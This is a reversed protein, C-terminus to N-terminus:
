AGQPGDPRDHAEAFLREVRAVEDERLEKFEKTRARNSLRGNNQYLFRHLLELTHQPMDVIQQVGGVFRDYAELYAVENPLDNVVTQEVCHYLFEAHATADFFRYYDRTDNLIDVNGSSTPRWDILPLLRRSYSELVRRYESLERLMAASVPFVMNPPTYGMAALVHHILWRHLRGNGDVFPHIYVLGFALSAAATVPDFGYQRVRRDFIEIGRLLGPLDAARASVHEPLPERTDRDREGIFGEEKRVGLPVFRSDEIVLRQLAELNDISVSETGARAIAQAWRRTRGAHPREDEIAFSAKSDSLQLFAAARAIVDAHARGIVQRALHDFGRARAANLSPTVRVLPCFDVSGPLTNRVRHRSSVEGGALAFQKDPELVPVVARKTDIDPVDLTEASLWELVFWARRLYRGHPATRIAESLEVNSAARKLAAFISLDIGEWKLAFTLQEALTEGPAHRPTLLLWEPTQVTHHVTAIGALRTPTPVDLGYRDILWAYGAPTAPEPLRRGHFVQAAASTQAAKQGKQSIHASHQTAKTMNFDMHFIRALSSIHACFIFLM